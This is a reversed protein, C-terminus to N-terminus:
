RVNLHPEAYVNSIRDNLQKSRIVDIAESYFDDRRLGNVALDESNEYNVEQYLRDGGNQAKDDNYTSGQYESLNMYDEKTQKITSGNSIVVPHDKKSNINMQDLKITERYKSKAQYPLSEVQQHKISSGLGSRSKRCGFYCFMTFMMLFICGFLINQMILFQEINEMKQIMKTLNEDQPSTLHDFNIFNLESSSDFNSCVEEMEEIMKPIDDKNRSSKSYCINPRLQLSELKKLNSFTSPDIFRIRNKSLVVVKLDDNFRFLNADLKEIENATLDLILLNVLPKLNEQRVEKLQSNLISLAQMTTATDEEFHPIYLIRKNAARFGNIEKKRRTASQDFTIKVHDDNITLQSAVDCLTINTVRKFPGSIINCKISIITIPPIDISANFTQSAAKHFITM